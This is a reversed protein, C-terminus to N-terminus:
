QCKQVFEYYTALIFEKGPKPHGVQELAEMRAEFESSDDKMETVLKDNETNEQKRIM